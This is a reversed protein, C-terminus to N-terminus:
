FTGNKASRIIDPVAFIFEPLWVTFAYKALGMFSPLLSSIYEGLTTTNDGKFTAKNEGVAKSIKFTDINKVSGTEDSIIYSNLVLEGGSISVTNFCGGVNAEDTNDFDTGDYYNAYGARQVVCADIFDKQMFRGLSFERIQYRKTGATGSLVYTSGENQSVVKNDNLPKTRLYMHDHGSMVLDVNTEDCVKALTEQLYLADPWKGDKGLTYPSKHMFVVKWDASTSNMDNRLWTLQANTVSLMDNTNVVAFHVNGYDFSYNVGNLTQVSESTDLAFMNEFWHSDSDHNGTVPVSTTGLSISDFSDAYLDWEENTCDNTYDGLSTLFEADPMTEFAKKVVNAGSEFNNANSAQVDAIVIFNLNDDGDDTTFTGKESWNVGDGVKYTYTIGAKLGGVVAKHVYNGKWEKSSYDIKLSATVDTGNADYIVIKTDSKQPTYWTFGRQSSTDGYVTCSIRSIDNDELANVPISACFLLSFCLMFSVIKLLSKKM